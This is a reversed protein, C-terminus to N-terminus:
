ACTIPPHRYWAGRLMEFHSKKITSEMVVCKTKASWKWSDLITSTVLEPLSLSMSSSSLVFLSFRLIKSQSIKISKIDCFQRSRFYGHSQHEFCPLATCWTVYRQLCLGLKPQIVISLQNYQALHGIIREDLIPYDVGYCKFTTPFPLLPGSYALTKPFFQYVSMAQLTYLSHVTHSFPDRFIPFLYTIRTCSYQLYWLQQLPKYGLIQVYPGTKDIRNNM